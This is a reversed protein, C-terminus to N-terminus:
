IGKLDDLLTCRLDSTYQSSEYIMYQGSIALENAEEKM